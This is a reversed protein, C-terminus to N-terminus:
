PRGGNLAALVSQALKGGENLPTPTARHQGQVYATSATPKPALKEALETIAQSNILGDDTLFKSTNASELFTDVDFDRGAFAAKFESEVARSAWKSTAETFGEQKGEDRAAAIAKEADSMQSAKIAELEDRVTKLEKIQEKQAALTKVLPHDDPLQVPTVEAVPETPKPETTPEESM